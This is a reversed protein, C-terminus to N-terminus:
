KYKKITDVLKNQNEKSVTLTYGQLVVNLEDVSEPLMDILKVMHKEKLRPVKLEELEKKIKEYDEMSLTDFVKIYEMTRGARYGLEGDRKEIKQMEAKLESMSVPRKSLIDPNNSM